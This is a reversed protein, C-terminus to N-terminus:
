NYSLWPNDTKIKEEEEPSFDNEINFKKRIEETSSCDKIYQAVKECCLDLLEPIDLYNSGIIVKYLFEDNDKFNDNIFQRKWFENEDASDKIYKIIFQLVDTEIATLPIVTDYIEESLDDEDEPDGMMALITRSKSAIEYTIQIETDDSSSITINKSM